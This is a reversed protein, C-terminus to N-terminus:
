VHARGIKISLEENVATLVVDEINVDQVKLIDNYAGYATSITIFRNLDFKSVVYTNDGAQGFLSIRDYRGASDNSAVILTDNGDGGFLNDSGGVAILVDDGEGGYLYDDKIGGTICDNGALGYIVTNNEDA